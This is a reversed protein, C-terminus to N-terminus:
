QIPDDSPYECITKLVDIFHGKGYKIIQQNIFTKEMYNYETVIKSIDYMHKDNVCLFLSKELRKKAYADPINEIYKELSKIKKELKSRTGKHRFGDYYPYILDCLVEEYFEFTDETFLSFDTDVLLCEYILDSNNDISNMENKLFDSVAQVDYVDLIRHAIFDKKYKNWVEIMKKILNKLVVFLENDSLDLGCKCIYCLTSLDYNDINFSTINLECDNFLYNDIIEQDKEVYINGYHKVIINDIERTSSIVLNESDFKINNEVLYRENYIRHTNKDEALKLITNFFRKAYKKNLRLFRQTIRSIKRVVGNNQHGLVSELMLKLIEDQLNKDIDFDLQEWLNITLEIEAIYSQNQFVKKIRVLWEKIYFNRQELTIDSKHLLGAIMQIIIQEYQLNLLKDKGLKELVVNVTNVYKQLDFGNEKIDSVLSNIKENIFKSKSKESMREDNIQKVRGEIKPEVIIVDDQNNLRSIIANRVDIKQIQLNENPYADEEYISYLYDLINNYEEQQPQNLYFYSEFAYAQLTKICKNDIQYRRDKDSIGVIQFIQKRLDNMQQNPNLLVYRKIDLYILNMSSVLDLTYGPLEKMFYMGITEVVSLLAINNSKEYISKKIYNAFKKFLERDTISELYRIINLKFIYIVDNLLIPLNNDTEGATWLDLNGFYSKKTEDKANYITIEDVSDKYNNNFVSVSHNLFSIVWDFGKKFDYKLIHTGMQYGRPFKLDELWPM